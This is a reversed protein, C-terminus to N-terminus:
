NFFEDVQVVAQGVAEANAVSVAKVILTKATEAPDVALVALGSDDLDKTITTGTVGGAVTWTIDKDYVPEETATTDDVVNLTAHFEKTAGKKVITTVPDVSLGVVTQDSATVFVVFPEFRSTSFVSWKHFWYNWYLGDENYRSNFEIETDYVQFWNESFLAGIVELDGFNDIIDKSGYFSMKDMNFASALSEVDIRADERARLILHQQSKPTQRIVKASNYDDSMFELLNSYTKAQIVFENENGKIEPVVVVKAYGKQIYSIMLQKMLTFEDIEAGDYLSQIVQTLLNNVGDWSTFATKVQAKSMTAKYKLRSNEVHYIVEIDPLKRKEVEAYSQEPDYKTGKAAHVFIEEMKWGTPMLGKKFRKLTNNILTQNFVTKAFKMVMGTAFENLTNPNELVAQGFEQVNDLTPEPVRSKFDSGMQNYLVNMIQFTTAGGLAQNLPKTIEAM